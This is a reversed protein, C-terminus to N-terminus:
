FRARFHESRRDADLKANNAAILKAVADVILDLAEEVEESEWYFTSSEQKALESLLFERAQQETMGHHSM